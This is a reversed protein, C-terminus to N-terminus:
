TLFIILGRNSTFDNVPYLREEILLRHINQREDAIQQRHVQPIFDASSQRKCCRLLNPVL